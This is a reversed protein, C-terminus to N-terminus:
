PQVGTGVNGSPGSPAPAGESIFVDRIQLDAAASFCLPILKVVQHGVPVPQGETLSKFETMSIVATRWGDADPSGVTKINAEFNGGFGGSPLQTSMFLKMVNGSKSGFRFRLRIVSRENLTVFPKGFGDLSSFRVGHHIVKSGDDKTGAVYPLARVYGSSGNTPAEWTGKGPLPLPRSGDYYWTTPIIQQQRAILEQNANLTAVVAENSGVSITKGDAARQISVQGSDVELATADALVMVNFSTGVVQIVATDTHIMMPKNKPQPQVSARLQGYQVQLRKQGDDIVHLTTDGTVQLLTGDAFRLTTKAGAGNLALSGSRVMDGSVLTRQQVADTTWLATGDSVSVVTIAQAPAPRTLEWTVSLSIALLVLAAAVYPWWVRRISFAQVSSAPQQQAAVAYDWQLSVHMAMFHRYWRRAEKDGVLLAEFQQQDTASLTGDVLRNCFLQLDHSTSM